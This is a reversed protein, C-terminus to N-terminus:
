FGGFEEQTTAVLGEEVLVERSQFEKIEVIHEIRRVIDYDKQDKIRWRLTSGDGSRAVVGVASLNQLIVNTIPTALGIHDAITSTSTEEGFEVMALVKLVHRKEENALSYGIWDLTSLDSETLEYSGTEYNQIIALCKGMSSLQLAVRMPMAPVPIRDITEKWRDKHAVTRVKEAFYAVETIRNRVEQSFDIERGDYAEIVAMIYDRYMKALEEDLEKGFKKRSLALQTAKHPDFDKMRYYIFREGMDAVEEFHSYISPTSGAIVGMYGEWEIPKTSNGSFKTMKGDYIMRFQSLITARAEAQKSFLVTLDSIVIIGQPGIRKLLSIEGDNSKLGSLFTNETLDDVRHIFKKDTMSFPRLIQSKGGSSAGIIVLWVPDGIKLRTAIISAISVDILKTDEMYQYKQVEQKLASLKM